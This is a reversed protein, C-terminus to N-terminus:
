STVPQREAWRLLIVSLVGTAAFGVVLPAVTDDFAAGISWGVPLAILASVTGIVAAGLGALHGISEMAMANLNGFLIGHCFMSILLWTMFTWLPPVGAALVILPLYSLSAVSVAVLARITM